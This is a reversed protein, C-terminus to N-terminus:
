LYAWLFEFKCSRHLWLWCETLKLIMSISIGGACWYLVKPSYTKLSGTKIVNFSELLGVTAFAWCSGCTGQNKVSTVAGTCSLSSLYSGHCCKTYSESFPFFAKPCTSNLFMWNLELRTKDIVHWSLQSWDCINNLLTLDYQCYIILKIM